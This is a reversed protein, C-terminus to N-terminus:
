GAERLTRIIAQQRTTLAELETLLAARDIGPAPTSMAEQVIKLMDASAQGWVGDEELGYRAQFDRVALSTAAGYKGDAGWKGLNFGLKQLEEQLAKVEPGSSGVRLINMGAGGESKIITIDVPQSQMRAAVRARFKDMSDGYIRMWNRPDGHNSAYGKAAAEYHSTISDSSLNLLQCLYACYAEATAMAEIYYDQQAKTPPKGSRPAHDECIEFQIHGVPDRNYSGNIGRGCGWSAVNYPLTHAVACRGDKDLGIFAHMCKDANQNNWHNSFPNVGLVEPADVYRKLWQNSAGTSHVLIGVPTMRQARQYCPNRKQPTDYLIM